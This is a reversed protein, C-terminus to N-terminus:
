AVNRGFAKTERFINVKGIMVNTANNFGAYNNTTINGPVRATFKTGISVVHEFLGM